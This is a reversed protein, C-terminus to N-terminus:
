PTLSTAVDQKYAVAAPLFGVISALIVLGPILVIEMAQFNWFHVAIGTYESIWPSMGAILLHGFFVGLLGGGLSLLISELLIITMVTLRRAGLARM